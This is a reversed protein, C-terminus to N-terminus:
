PFLDTRRPLLLHGSRCDFFTIRTLPPSYVHISVADHSGPNSVEHVHSPPLAVSDGAIISRSRLPHGRQRDTYTEDLQGEVVHVVAASGGHDHLELGASQAWGILWVECARTHLLRVYRRSMGPPTSVWSRDAVFGFGAAMDELAEM